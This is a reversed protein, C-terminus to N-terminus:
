RTISTLRYYKNISQADFREKTASKSFAVRVYDGVGLDKRSSYLNSIEDFYRIGNDEYRIRRSINVADIYVKLIKQEEDPSASTDITMYGETTNISLIRGNTRHVNTPATTYSTQSNKSPNTFHYGLVLGLSFGAFLVVIKKVTDM